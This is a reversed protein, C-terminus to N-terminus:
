IQPLTNKGANQVSLPLYRASVRRRVFYYAIRGSRRREAALDNM